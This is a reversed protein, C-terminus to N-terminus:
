KAWLFGKLEVGKQFGLFKLGKEIDRVTKSIYAMKHLFTGRM